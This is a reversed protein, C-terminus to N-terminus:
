VVPSPDNISAADQVTTYLIKEHSQSYKDVSHWDDDNVTVGYKLVGATYASVKM